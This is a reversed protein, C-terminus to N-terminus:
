SRAPGEPGLAAMRLATEAGRSVSSHHVSWQLAVKLDALMFKLAKTWKADKNLTLKITHANVKDGEIAFPYHFIDDGVLGNARDITAAYMGFEHLCALYCIMARDYNASWFKSV